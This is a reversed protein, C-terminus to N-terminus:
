MWVSLLEQHDLGTIQGLAFRGMEDKHLVPKFFHLAFDWRILNKAFPEQQGNTAGM